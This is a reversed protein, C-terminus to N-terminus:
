SCRRPVSGVYRSTSSTVVPAENNVPVDGVVSLMAGTLDQFLDLYICVGLNLDIQVQTPQNWWLSYREDISWFTWLSWCFQSGIFVFCSNPLVRLLQISLALQGLRILPLVVIVMCSGDVHVQLSSFISCSVVLSTCYRRDSTENDRKMMCTTVM